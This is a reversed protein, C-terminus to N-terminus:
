VVSKRDVLFLGGIDHYFMVYRFGRRASEPVELISPAEGMYYKPHVGRWVYNNEKSGKWEVSNQKPLTWSLGDTSEAYSTVYEHWKGDAGLGLYTQYWMRFLGTKEDRIVSIYGGKESILPNREHKKGPHFVRSVTEKPQNLTWHNDVIYGDFLFQPATGIAVPEVPLAADALVATTAGFTLILTCFSLWVPQRKM